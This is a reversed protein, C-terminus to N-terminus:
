REVAGEVLSSYTHVCHIQVEVEVHSVDAGLVGDDQGSQEAEDTGGDRRWCAAEM